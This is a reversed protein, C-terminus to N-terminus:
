SRVAIGMLEVLASPDFLESVGFLGTAPYHRGLRRRWIEGLDALHHRYAAVDTVFIQLWVLDRPEGGSARLATLLSALAGDFQEPLTEGEGIQGALYITDAAVVAHSFGKPQQLQPPNVIRHM